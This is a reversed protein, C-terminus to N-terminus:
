APKCARNTVDTEKGGEKAEDMLRIQVEQRTRNQTSTLVISCLSHPFLPM